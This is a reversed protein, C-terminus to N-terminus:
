IKKENSKFEDAGIHVHMSLSQNNGTFGQRKLGTCMHVVSEAGDHGSLIPSVVEIPYDGRMSGDHVFNYDMGVFESDLRNIAEGSEANLELEYGFTRKSTIVDTKKKLM